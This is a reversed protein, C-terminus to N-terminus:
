CRKRKRYKGGMAFEPEIDFPDRYHYSPEYKNKLNNIYGKINDVKNKADLIKQKAAIDDMLDMAEVVEDGTANPNTISHLRTRNKSISEEIESLEDRGYLHLNPVENYADDILRFADDLNNGEGKIISNITKDDFYPFSKKLYSFKDGLVKSVGKVVPKGLRELTNPLFLLGANLAARKYNKNKFDSVAQGGQLIDGVVPVFGLPGADYQVNKGTNRNLRANPVYGTGPVFRTRTNDRASYKDDDGGYKLQNDNRTKLVIQNQRDDIYDRNNALTGLNQQLALNQQDINAMNTARQQAQINKKNQIANNIQTGATIATGILMIADDLGFVAKRRKCKM